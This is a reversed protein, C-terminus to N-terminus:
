RAEVARGQLAMEGRKAFRSPGNSTPAADTGALPGSRRLEEITIPETGRPVNVRFADPELPANIDLQSLGLTVDFRRRDTSILRITHPLDNHFDRFEARWESSTSNRHVVAVLRWPEAPRERRLYAEIPGQIVRWQEGLQRGDRADSIDACGTLTTRLDSPSLSMGTLAELVADPPGHELVRGDRPLLLTADHAGAVFIFVPQGFPAPAELRVSAPTALGALLRARMRRGNVAGRVAVVATITSVGRCVRTAQTLAEAADLAPVAPGAPLKMLPAGCSATVLAAVLAPVTRTM